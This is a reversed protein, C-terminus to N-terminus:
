KVGSEGHWMVLERPGHDALKIECVSQMLLGTGQARWDLGVRYYGPPLKEGVVSYTKVIEGVGLKASQRTWQECLSVARDEVTAGSYPPPENLLTRGMWRGALILVIIAAIIALKKM